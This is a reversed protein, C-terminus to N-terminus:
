EHRGVMAAGGLEQKIRQVVTEPDGEWAAVPAAEAAGDAEGLAEPM